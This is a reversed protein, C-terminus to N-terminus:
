SGVCDRVMVQLILAKNSMRGERSGQQGRELDIGREKEGERDSEREKQRERDRQTYRGGEGGGGQRERGKRDREGM